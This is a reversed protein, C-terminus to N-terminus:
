QAEVSVGIENRIEETRIDIANNIKDIIKEDTIDGEVNINIDGIGKEEREKALAKEFAVETALEDLKSQALKTFAFQPIESLRFGIESIGLKRGLGTNALKNWGDILKNIAKIAMNIPFIFVSLIADGVFALVQLIFIGTAKFALGWSNTVEKLKIFQNILFAIAIAVGIYAGFTAWTAVKVSTLWKVFKTAKLVEIKKILLAKGAILGLIGLTVQGIVMLPGGIAIALAAFTGIFLAVKPHKSIFESIRNILQILGNIFGIVLDSQSLADVISFKLFEFSAQVGLLQQAFKNQEDTATLYTKILSKLIADGLRKLAMGTFLMSLGFGLMNTRLQRMGVDMKKNTETIQRQMIDQNSVFKNTFKDVITGNKRMILGMSSLKTGLNAKKQLMGLRKTTRDITSNAQANIVKLNILLTDQFTTM